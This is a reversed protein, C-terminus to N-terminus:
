NIKAALKDSQHKDCLSYQSFVCDSLEWHDVKKFFESIGWTM